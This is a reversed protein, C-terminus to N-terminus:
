KREKEIHLCVEAANIVELIMGCAMLHLVVRSCSKTHLPAKPRPLIARKLGVTLM